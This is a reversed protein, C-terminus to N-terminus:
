DERLASVPDIRTARRAPMWAAVGGVVVAVVLVLGYTLPDTPRIGFLLQTLFRTAGFAGLLGVFAGLVVIGLAQRVIMAVTASSDAGLAMRVGIEGTRQTVTYAVIGYTGVSALVAACIALAVLLATNFRPQAVSEWLLDAIAVVATPALQPDMDALVDRVAAAAAGPELDSHVVIHMESMSIQDYPIFLEPAFESQLGGHRIDSVVGVIELDGAMPMRLMQGIPDIDKFYREVLTENVLAIKRDDEGDLIDFSRGRILEIGMAEIYGPLIARFDANPRATPALSDLGLVTFSMEFAVGVESMPLDSVGGAGKVGPLDAVRTVLQKFFTRREDTQYRSRPLEVAVAVVGDQRFGPDVENLRAFSRVMLGAGVLLVMALAVEVVVMLERLRRAGGVTTGSAGAPKLLEALNPSMSRFAPLLGFLVSAGISLAAAFVLVTGDLSIQAGRPVEAPMVARLFAVGWLAILLGVGGGFLGLLLSEALSRKALDAARAGMAARVAFERATASSRVVLVNAINACAILLVLFVAASLVWLTAAVDGLVEARLPRVRMGWGENTDSFERDLREAIASVEDNAGAVSAGDSLRAVTDFMRHARDLLIGDDLTLPTYMEVQDDGPPFHFGEESVGVVTYPESDLEVTTGVIEPDAGFRRTWSAHTLVVQKESGPKEDDEDFVRGVEPGAQLVRFVRPSIVLSSVRAPRELATMTFGVYRYIAVQGDFAAASERVDRYDGMSFRSNELGQAENTQWLVVLQGEDGFGLSRLLVGNVVSFIATNAGIAIALTAIVVLTPGPTSLLSKAAAKFNNM